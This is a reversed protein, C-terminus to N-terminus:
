LAEPSSLDSGSEVALSRANRDVPDTGTLSQYSDVLDAYTSNEIKFLRFTEISTDNPGSELWRVTIDRDM